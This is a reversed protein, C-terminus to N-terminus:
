VKTKLLCTFTQPMNFFELRTTKAGDIVRAFAQLSNHIFVESGPASVFTSSDQHSKTKPLQYDDVMNAAFVVDALLGPL